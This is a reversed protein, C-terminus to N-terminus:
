TITKIIQLVNYCLKTEADFYSLKYQIHSLHHSLYYFVIHTLNFSPSSVLIQDKHVQPSPKSDNLLVFKYFLKLLYKKGRNIDFKKYRKILILYNKKISLLLSVSAPFLIINLSILTNNTVEKPYFRAWDFFLYIEDIKKKLIANLMKLFNKRINLFIIYNKIVFITRCVNFWKPRPRELTLLITNIKENIKTVFLVGFCVDDM